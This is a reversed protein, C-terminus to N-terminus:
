RRGKKYWITKWVVKTKPHVYTTFGNPDRPNKGSRVAGGSVQSLFDLELANLEAQNKKTRANHNKQM